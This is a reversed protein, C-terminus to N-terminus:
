PPMNPSNHVWTCRRPGPIGCSHKSITWIRLKAFRNHGLSAVSISKPPWFICGLLGDLRSARNQRFTANRRSSKPPGSLYQYRKVDPFYIRWRAALCASRTRAVGQKRIMQGTKVTQIDAKLQRNEQKLPGGPDLARKGAHRNESWKQM